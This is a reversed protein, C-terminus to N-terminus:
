SGDILQLLGDNSSPGGNTLTVRNRRSPLMRQMPKLRHDPLRRLDLRM